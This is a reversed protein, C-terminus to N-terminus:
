HETGDTEGHVEKTGDLLTYSEGPHLEVKRLQDPGVGLSLMAGVLNEYNISRMYFKVKSNTPFLASVVRGALNDGSNPRIRLVHHYRSDGAAAPEGPISYAPVTEPAPLIGEKNNAM